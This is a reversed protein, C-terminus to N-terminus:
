AGREVSRAIRHVVYCVVAVEATILFVAFPNRLQEHAHFFADLHFVVLSPLASLVFGIFLFLERQWWAPQHSLEWTGDVFDPWTVLTFM